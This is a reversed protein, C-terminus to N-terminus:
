NQWDVKWKEGIYNIIRTSLMREIHKNVNNPDNPDILVFLYDKFTNNKVKFKLENSNTKMVDYTDPTYQTLNIVDVCFVLIKIKPETYYNFNVILDYWDTGLWLFEKLEETNTEDSNNKIIKLNNKIAKEFDITKKIDNELRTKNLEAHVVVHNEIKLRM